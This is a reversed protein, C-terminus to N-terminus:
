RRLGKLNGLVAKTLDEEAADTFPSTTVEYGGEAFAKRTPLYGLWGNAYGFYFTNKFPSARRVGTAIENFLELPASWVALEPGIRLFRVPLRVKGAGSLYDKLEDTWGCKPNRNTEVVASGAKLAVRVPAVPLARNTELIRDGLLVKFETIHSSRFDQTVTYIPALDGAAANLFLVPAGIKGEVYETVVGPSDGSILLNSGGLTTGHMAYNALLAIPSGDPRELRILGIQRDVPGDPNLGLRIKGDADRARRNINASATGTGARLRAPQLKERAERIGDIFAKKV